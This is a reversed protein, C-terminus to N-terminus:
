AVRTRTHRRAPMIRQRYYEITDAIGEPAQVQPQWGLLQRAKTIDPRRRTPDDPPLPHHEIKSRSGTLECILEAIELVMMEHPNGLNVPGPDQELAMMRILGEILDSQYCLSRTQSGDGYVTLPQDRLAQNIFNSIVRGDDEHMRPGYTNFIRVVRTAVGDQAAYAVALAEGCRKGEDYCARKGIPNVNGRYEEPQPHVEPEGYIESTSTYLIRAGTQAALELMNMTGIVATKLTRVPNRQYHVPSAPCALHYIEDVEAYFPEVVDHRVLEFRRANPGEILHAVNEPHGTFFNDVAMVHHGAELLRACLHSGLFGAGGTVLSRRM